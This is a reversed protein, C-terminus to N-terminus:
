PVEVEDGFTSAVYARMAAILPTPGSAGHDVEIRPADVSIDSWHRGEEARIDYGAVWADHVFFTAILERDIIPGGHEWDTSYAKPHPEAYSVMADGEQTFWCPLADAYAKVGLLWPDSSESTAYIWDNKALAVAVDLLAGELTSTKHKM